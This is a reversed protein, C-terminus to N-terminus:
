TEICGVVIGGSSAGLAVEGSSVGMVVEDKSAGLVVEGGSGGLLRKLIEGHSGGIGFIDEGNKFSKDYKQGESKLCSITILTKRYGPVFVLRVSFPFLFLFPLSFLFFPFLPLPPLYPFPPPLFLFCCCLFSM